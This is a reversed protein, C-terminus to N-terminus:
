LTSMVTTLDPASIQYFVKDIELYKKVM